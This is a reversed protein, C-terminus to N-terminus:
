EKPTDSILPPPALEAWHTYAHQDTASEWYGYTADFTDTTVVRAGTSSMYVVQYEGDEGPLDYYNVGNDSYLPKTIDHWVTSNSELEKIRAEMADMVSDAANKALFVDVDPTCSTKYYAELNERGYM